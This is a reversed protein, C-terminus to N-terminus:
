LGDDEEQTLPEAGPPLRPRQWSLGPQPVCDPRESSSDCLLSSMVRATAHRSLNYIQGRGAWGRCVRDRCVRDRGAQGRCVRRRGARGRCVRDRGERGRCVQGQGGSRQVGSGQGGSRQGGSRQGGSEAQRVRGPRKGPGQEPRGRHLSTGARPRTPRGEQGGRDCM